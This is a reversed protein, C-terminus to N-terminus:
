FYKSIKGGGRQFSTSYVWRFHSYKKHTADDSLFYTSASRIHSSIHHKPRVFQSWNGCSFFNMSSQAMIWSKCWCIWGVRMEIRMCWFPDPGHSTSYLNCVDLDFVLSDGVSPPTQALIPWPISWWFFGLRLYLARRPHRLRRCLPPCPRGCFNLAAARPKKEQIKSLWSKYFFLTIFFYSMPCHVSVPFIPPILFSSEYLRFLKAPFVSYCFVQMSKYFWQSICGIRM